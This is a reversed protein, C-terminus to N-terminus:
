PRSKKNINQIRLERFRRYITAKSIGLKKSIESYSMHNQTHLKWAFDIQEKTYKRPMGDHFNPNNAKAWAKGEQTRSVILDREFEAFASFVTFILRGSPSNDITGINLVRLIVGEANMKKVINLADQTNRALRDLKTVILTDGNKITTMLKDFEPRNATTGTYKDKFIKTAGAKKLDAIQTAYDQQATSVRAYGYIM